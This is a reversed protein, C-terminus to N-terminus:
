RGTFVKEVPRGRTDALYDEYNYHSEGTVLNSLHGFHSPAATFSPLSEYCIIGLARELAMRRARTNVVELLKFFDFEKVLRDLFHWSLMSMCGFCGVWNSTHSLFHQMLSTSDKLKGLLVPIDAPVSEQRPFHWLFKIQLEPDPQIRTNLFVSDHMLIAKRWPRLKYFYYYPLLEARGPFEGAIIQCNTMELYTLQEPDSNDDIILIPEAHFKRIQRYCTQWYRNTNADRVCRSIVFGFEPLYALSLPPPVAVPEPIWHPRVVKNITIFGCSFTIQDLGQEVLDRTTKEIKFPDSCFDRIGSQSDDFRWQNLQRTLQWFYELHQPRGPFVYNRHRYVTTDEVVYLGGDKLMPFLIEFTPLVDINRHSGDDLILDFPGHRRNIDALFDADTQDGIEIWIGQAPNQYIKCEANIDVGVISVAAPFARRWAMVSQGGFVGIELMKISRYRLSEFIPGYQRGYNHHTSNKDTGFSDLIPVLWNTLVPGNYQNRLGSFYFEGSIPDRETQIRDCYRQLSLTEFIHSHDPIVGTSTAPASGGTTSWATAGWTCTLFLLGGPQLLAPLQILRELIGPGWQERGLILRFSGTAPLSAPDVPVPAGPLHDAPIEPDYLLIAGAASEVADPYWATLRTLSQM